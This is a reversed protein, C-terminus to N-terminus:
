HDYTLHIETFIFLNKMGQFRGSMMFEPALPQLNDLNTM